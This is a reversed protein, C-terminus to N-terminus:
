QYVRIWDVYLDAADGYRSLDSPWGGGLNNNIMFQMGEKKCIELTPHQWVLINDLYYYTTTETVKCGYIHFVQAIDAHGATGTAQVWHSKYQQGFGWDHPTVWYGVAHPGYGEIIDLENSKNKGGVHSGQTLLWFAPWTGTANPCMMRCEFYGFLPAVGTGDTRESTLMGSTYKRKWGMKDEIGPRYETRIRMYTGTQYFPDYPGGRDASIADGYETGDAKVSNYTADKGGRSITPMRNFDDAFVLRMGKTQPPSPTKTLGENWKVGGTNYLQLYCTDPGNNACVLITLPGHPFENAPFVFSAYGHEDTTIDTVFKSNYGLTDAHLKDPQHWCSVSLNKFGPAHVKITTKGKIDSRYAPSLVTINKQPDTSAGSLQGYSVPPKIIVFGMLLLTIFKCGRKM